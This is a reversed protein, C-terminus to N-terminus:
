NYKRTPFCTLVSKKPRKAHNIEAVFQHPFAQELTGQLLLSYESLLM